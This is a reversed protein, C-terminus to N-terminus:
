SPDQATSLDSEVWVVTWGSEDDTYIYTSADPIDTSVFEVIAPEPHDTPAPSRLQSWTLGAVIAVAAAISLPRLWAPFSLLNKRDQSDSSAGIAGSISALAEDRNPPFAAIPDVANRATDLNEIWDISDPNTELYSQLREADHPSLEGDALQSMLLQAETPSLTEDPKM